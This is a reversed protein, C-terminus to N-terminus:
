VLSGNKQQILHRAEQRETPWKKLKQDWMNLVENKKEEV